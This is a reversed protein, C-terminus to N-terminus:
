DDHVGGCVLEAEEDIDEIKNRILMLGLIYNHISRRRVIKFVFIQDEITQFMNIFEQFSRMDEIIDMGRQITHNVIAL